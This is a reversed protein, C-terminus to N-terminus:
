EKGLSAIYTDAGLAAWVTDLPIGNVLLANLIKCDQIMVYWPFRSMWEYRAIMGDDVKNEDSFAALHGRGIIVPQHKGRRDTTLGACYIEDNERISSPRFPYNALYVVGAPNEIDTMQFPEEPPLHDDAEGDFKLWINYPFQIQEVQETKRFLELVM